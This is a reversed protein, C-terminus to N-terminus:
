SKEGVTFTVFPVPTTQSYISLSSALFLAQVQARSLPHGHGINTDALIFIGRQRLVRSTECVGRAKDSWHHFSMTSSVLDISDDELPLHEASAQYITASPTLQHARTVMGESLDVGLLAAAPWCAHMRRLLRGTGCGIDLVSSPTFGVPLRTLVGRHVRDFVLWQMFSREYNESWQNFRERDNNHPATSM